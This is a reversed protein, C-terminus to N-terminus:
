TSECYAERVSKPPESDFYVREGLMIRQKSM